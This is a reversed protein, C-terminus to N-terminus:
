GDRGLLIERLSKNCYMTGKGVSPWFTWFPLSMYTCRMSAIVGALNVWVGYGIWLVM